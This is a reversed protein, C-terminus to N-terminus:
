AHLRAVFKTLIAKEFAADVPKGPREFTIQGYVAGQRFFVIDGWARRTGGDSLVVSRFGIEQEAIHPLKLRHVSEIIESGPLKVGAIACYRPYFEAGANYEIKAQKARALFVVGSTLREIGTAEPRFNRSSWAARVVLESFDAVHGLCSFSPGVKAVLDRQWAPDTLWDSSLDRPEITVRKSRAQIKPDLAIRPKAPVDGTLSPRAAESSRPLAAAFFGAGALAVVLWL